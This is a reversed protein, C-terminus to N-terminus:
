RSRELVAALLCAGEPGDFPSARFEIAFTAGDKHQGALDDAPPGPELPWPPLGPILHHVPQGVLESRHYGFLRETQSNVLRITGRGDILLLGAPSSEFLTQYRAEDCRRPRLDLVTSIVYVGEETEFPSLGLEIPIEKGEKDLGRLERGSGARVAPSALYAARLEAHHRRFREPILVEVPQGLLAARSYGFLNEAERNVLVIQGERDSVIVAVPSSELASHFRQELHKRDTVDRATAFIIGEDPVSKAAWEFWRYRGARDRYRNEFQVVPIGRSLRAVQEQTQERDDPHVFELFPRSLLEETDFGLVRSFNRNVQKFYGDLGALCFLDLSLEFFRALDREPQRLVHLLYAEVLSAVESADAPRRNRDRQLCRKALDLIPRDAQCAELRLSATVLHSDVFREVSGRAIVEAPRLPEGVLIEFLIAGLSFVDTREDQDSDGRAQEPAMYQPTGVLDVAITRAADDDGAARDAASCERSLVVTEAAELPGASGAAGGEGAPALESRLRAIGWDMVYVAGYEGVVINEPKLDRHIVGRAHAFAITQCVQQFITLFRARDRLRDSSEGLLRALTRGQVLTMSFFPRADALSGCAFVPPVGPHQLQATIAAERQFRRGLERDYRHRQQLVKLVVTRGLAVDQALLITGMAGQAFPHKPCAVAYNSLATVLGDPGAVEGSEGPPNAGPAPSSLREGALALDILTQQTEHDLPNGGEGASLSSPHEPPM